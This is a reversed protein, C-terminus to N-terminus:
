GGSAPLCVYTCLRRTSICLPMYICVSLCVCVALVYVVGHVAVGPQRMCLGDGDTSVQTHTHVCVYM